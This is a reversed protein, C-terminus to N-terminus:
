AIASARPRAARSGHAWFHRSAREMEELGANDSLLAEHPELFRRRGETNEERIPKPGFLPHANWEMRAFAPQARRTLSAASEGVSDPGRQAITRGGRNQAAFARDERASERTGERRLRLEGEHVEVRV